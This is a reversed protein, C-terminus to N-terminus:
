ERPSVNRRRRAPIPMPSTSDLGDLGPCFGYAPAGSRIWEGRTGQIVDDDEALPM